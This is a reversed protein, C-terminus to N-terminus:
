DNNLPVLMRLDILGQILPALEGQNSALRLVDPTCFSPGLGRLTDLLTQVDKPASWREQTQWNFIHIADDHLVIDVAKDEVRYPRAGCDDRLQEPAQLNDHRRGNVKDAFAQYQQIISARQEPRMGKDIVRLHNAAFLAQGKLQGAHIPTLGFQRPNRGIRSSRTAEFPFISVADICDTLDDLYALAAVAEDYKTTPLDPILNIQLKIGADHGTRLFAANEDATAFKEVLSLVRDVMTELGIVLSECGSNKMAHFHEPTFHRDVMAFSNWRIKLGKEEVLRSFKLAFSPPIAETILSFRSVGHENMQYMVEDIFSEPSRTRYRPSGEYLEVFDCYACKGWYCGRTQVIGIEPDSLRSLIEKAYDANALANLPLGSTAATHVVQGDAQRSSTNGVEDPRWQGQATQAALATLAVEGDYRVIADLGHMNALMFAIDMESMLSLAPGGMVIKVEPRRAKILQTLVLAPLLQPGMPVSIGILAIENAAVISLDLADYFEQYWTVVPCGSSLRDFIDVILDDVILPKALLSLLYSPSGTKAALRVRGEEDYLLARNKLLLRAAVSAMHTPQLDGAAGPLAGDAIGQLTAPELLKEALAANLDKQIVTYGGSKLHGALVPLSPYYSGFGTTVVPPFLLLVSM